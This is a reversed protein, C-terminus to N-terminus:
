FGKGNNTCEQVTSHNVETSRLQVYKTICKQACNISACIKLFVVSLRSRNRRSCSRGSAYQSRALLGFNLYMFGKPQFRLKVTITNLYETRVACYVSQIETIFVLCNINHLSIIM